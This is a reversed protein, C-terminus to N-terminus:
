HINQCTPMSPSLKLSKDDPGFCLPRLLSVHLYWVILLRAKFVSVCYRHMKILNM